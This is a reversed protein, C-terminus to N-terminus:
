QFLYLNVIWFINFRPHIHTCHKYLKYSLDNFYLHVHMITERIGIIIDLIEYSSENSIIVIITLM